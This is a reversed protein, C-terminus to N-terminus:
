NGGFRPTGFDRNADQKGIRIRLRDGAAAQEFFLETLQTYPESELNTVPEASGVAGTIGANGHNNQGLAYLTGGGWLGLKHTDLTIAADVHGLVSSAGRATFAESAYFVDITLGRDALASRAGGWDGTLHEGDLWGHEAAPPPAEAPPGAAGPPDPQARAPGPGLLVSLGVSLGVAFPAPPAARVGGPPM